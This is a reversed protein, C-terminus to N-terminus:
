SKMWLSLLLVVKYLTFFLGCSFVAWYSEYSHDCKLIKDVYELAPVVKYLIIFPVVSLYQKTAKM